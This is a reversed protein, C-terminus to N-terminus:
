NSKNKRDYNGKFGIAMYREYVTPKNEIKDWPGEYELVGSHLCNVIHSKEKFEELSNCARIHDKERFDNNGQVIYYTNAPINDHWTDYEWQTLHETSTNIVLDVNTEYEFYQMEGLWYAHKRASWMLPTKDKYQGYRRDGFQTTKIIKNNRYVQVKYKKPYSGRSFKFKVMTYYSRM